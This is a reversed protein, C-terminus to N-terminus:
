LSETQKSDTLLPNLQMRMIRRWENPPLVRIRSATKATNNCVSQRYLKRPISRRALIGLHSQLNRYGFQQNKFLVM